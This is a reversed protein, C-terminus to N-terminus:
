GHRTSPDLSQVSAQILTGFEKLTQESGPGDTTLLRVFLSSGDEKTILKRIALIKKLGNSHPFDTMYHGNLWYIVRYKEDARAALMSNVPQGCLTFSRRDKLDFGQSPFCLNPDHFDKYDTATLLLLEVSRGGADTYVRDVIKATSLKAQIEPDVPTDQSVRWNGIARPFSAVPLLHPHAMELRPALRNASLAAGLMLLGIGLCVPNNQM